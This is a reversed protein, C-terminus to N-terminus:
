QGVAEVEGLDVLLEQPGKVIALRSPPTSRQVLEAPAAEYAAFIVFASAVPAQTGSPVNSIPPRTPVETSTFGREVGWPLTQTVMFATSAFWFLRGASLSGNLATKGQGRLSGLTRDRSGTNSLVVVQKLL